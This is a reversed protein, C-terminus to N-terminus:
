DHGLARRLAVGVAVSMLPAAQQFAPDEQIAHPVTIAQFPDLPRVPMGLSDALTSVMDPALAYGGTLLVGRDIVVTSSDSLGELTEDIHQRIEQLFQEHLLIESAGQEKRTTSSRQPLLLQDLLDGYWEAEYVVKRIYRPHGKVIVVM